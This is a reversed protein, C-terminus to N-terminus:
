DYDKLLERLEQCNDILRKKTRAYFSNKIYAPSTNYKRAIDSVTYGNVKCLAYLYEKHKEGIVSNLTREIKRKNFFNNLNDECEKVSEESGLLDELYGEEDKTTTKNISVTPVPTTIRSHTGKKYSLKRVVTYKQEIARTIMVRIWYWAYTSFGVTRKYNFRKAAEILGMVGDQVLDETDYKIMDDNRDSLLRYKQLYSCVLGLNGTVIRKINEPSYGYKKYLELTEKNTLFKDVRLKNKNIIWM